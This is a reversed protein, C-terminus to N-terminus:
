EPCPAHDWRERDSYDERRPEIWRSGAARDERKWFVADTKLRDMMYDAGDFAARRHLAAAAVFVITEGPSVAGCRHVIRLSSLSFRERAANAIENLSALTLSPHHDLVLREVAAGDSARPRAIGLFSVVAGEGSLGATFAALERDAAFPTDALRVSM